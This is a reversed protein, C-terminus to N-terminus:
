IRGHEINAILISIDDSADGIRDEIAYKPDERMLNEYIENLESLIRDKYDTFNDSVASIREDLLM